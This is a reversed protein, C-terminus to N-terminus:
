SLIRVWYGPCKKAIMAIQEAEILQDANHRNSWPYMGTVIKLNPENICSTAIDNRRATNAIDATYPEEDTWDKL